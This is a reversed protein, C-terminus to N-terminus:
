TQYIPTVLANAANPVSGGHIAKTAFGLDQESFRKM